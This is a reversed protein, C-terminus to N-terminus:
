SDHGAGALRHIRLTGGLRYMPTCSAVPLASQLLRRHPLGSSCAFLHDWFCDPAFQPHADFLMVRVDGLSAGPHIPLGPVAHWGAVTTVDYLRM